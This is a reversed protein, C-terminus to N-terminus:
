FSSWFSGDEEHLGEEEEDADGRDGDADDTKQKRV